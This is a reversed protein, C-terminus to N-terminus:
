KTYIEFNETLHANGVLSCRYGILSACNQGTQLAIHSGDSCGITGEIPDVWVWGESPFYVEAWDHGINGWNQVGESSVNWLVIGDIFNAPIHIARCLAVFLFAYESCDGTRNELAFLAGLPKSNFGSYNLNNHVWDCIAYSQNVVGSLGKTINQATEILLPNEAEIFDESQIFHTLNVIDYNDQEATPKSFETRNIKILCNITINTIQGKTGNIEFHAITNNNEDNFIRNPMISYNLSLITQFNTKNNPMTWNLNVTNSQNFNLQLTYILHCTNSSEEDNLSAYNDQIIVM